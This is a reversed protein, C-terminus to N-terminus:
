FVPQVSDPRAPVRSSAQQPLPRGDATKRLSPYGAQYLFGHAPTKGIEGPSRAFKLSVDMGQFKEPYVKRKRIFERVFSASGSEMWYNASDGSTLLSVFSFPNYLRATGDFSFGNHWDRIRKMLEPMDLGLRVALSSLRPSFCDATEQDTFGALAAYPRQLPIDTVTNLESFVGMGPFRTVGTIFTFHVYESAAKHRPYFARM